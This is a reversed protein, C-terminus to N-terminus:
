SLKGVEVAGLCAFMNVIVRCSRECCCACADFSLM